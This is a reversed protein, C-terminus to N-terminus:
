VDVVNGLVVREEWREVMLLLLLPPSVHVCLLPRYTFTSLHLNLVTIKVPVVCSIYVNHFYGTGPRRHGVPAAPRVWGGVRLSHKFPFSAHGRQRAGRACMPFNELRSGRIILESIEAYRVLRLLGEGEGQENKTGAKGGRNWLELQGAAFAGESLSLLALLESGRFKTRSFTSCTIGCRDVTASSLLNRSSIPFHAHGPSPSPLPWSHPPPLLRFPSSFNNKRM